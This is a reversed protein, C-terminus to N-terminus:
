RMQKRLGVDSRILILGVYASPAQSVLILSFFIMYVLRIAPLEEAYKKRTEEISSQVDSLSEALEEIQPELDEVQQNVLYLDEALVSLDDRLTLLDISTTNLDNEMGRLDEPIDELNSNLNELAQDLPVEPTYDVGLGIKFAEGFPNPITFQFGSLFTLTDDVAAATEILGPMSAQVGELAEPVDQTIVQSAEAILPRTDTLTFTIGVIAERVTGLSEEVSSLAEGTEDLLGYANSLNEEFVTLNRDLFDQSCHIVRDGYYLGTISLAAWILCILLRLIGM